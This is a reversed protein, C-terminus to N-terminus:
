EHDFRVFHNAGNEISKSGISCDAGVFAADLDQRLIGIAVGLAIEDVIRMFGPRLRDRVKAEPWVRNVRRILNGGCAEDGAVLEAEKISDIYKPEGSGAGGEQEVARVLWFLGPIM